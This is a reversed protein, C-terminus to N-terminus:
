SGYLIKGLTELLTGATYPKALVAEVGLNAAGGLSLITMGSAAIIKIGPNMKKLARITASGDMFPMQMDIIAAKVRNAHQAFQSVAETGDNAKVVTYGSSELVACATECVAVDDDVVLILEGNGKQFEERRDVSTEVMESELAPLYM